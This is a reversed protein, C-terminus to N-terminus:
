NPARLIKRIKDISHGSTTPAHNKVSYDGGCNYVRAKNGSLTGAYIEVHGSYVLIDGAQAQNISSITQWGWPNSYFTSSTKQHGEFQTYGCRYLVWSVFSSCDITRGNIVGNPISIGRQAYQYGNKVIYEHAKAAEQAVSGGSGHVNSYGQLEAQDAATTYFNHSSRDGPLADNFLFTLSSWWSDKAAATPTCFYVAGGTTDGNSIVSRVAAKTTESPIARDYAGNRIPQFQGPAFVVGRVTNPFRSSLVRNLLVSVVYEQQQQTGGGREASTIKCLIEFDEESIQLSGYSAGIGPGSVEDFEGPEFISLDISISGDDVGDNKYLHILYRMLEAHVQTKQNNELLTCLWDEAGFINIRPNDNEYTGQPLKYQVEIGDKNFPAGEVYKGTDNKWLGLFQSPSLKTNTEQAQWENENVTIVTTESQDVKWTGTDGEPEPEDPIEITQGQEGLPYEPPKAVCQYNIAQDLIWTKARTVNAKIADTQTITTTVQDPQKDPGSKKPEDWSGSIVNTGTEDYQTSHHEVWKRMISHRYTYVETNTTISDFITLEINSSNRVLDAVAQVYNASQAVSQLNILFEFPLTYQSVMTRYPIKVESINYETEQGNVTVRYAKTICLNWSEDLSFYQKSKEKTGRDGSELMQTFKEYGIYELDQSEGNENRKIHIIGKAEEDSGEIYPFESIMSATMLNYLYQTAQSKGDKLNKMDGFGLDHLDIGGSLLEEELAKLMEEKNFHIGDDDITCYTDIMNAAKQSTTDAVFNDVVWKALPLVLSAIIVVIIIQPTLASFISIAAKAIVQGAKKAASKLGNRGIDKVQDNIKNEINNKQQEEMNNQEEDM